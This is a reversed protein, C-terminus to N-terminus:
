LPKNRTLWDQIDNVLKKLYEIYTENKAKVGALDGDKAMFELQKAKEKAEKAGVYECIGKVSHINIIYDHLTEESVTYIKTLLERVNAVYLDLSYLFINLDGGCVELGSDVDLGPIDIKM